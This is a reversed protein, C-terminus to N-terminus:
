SLSWSRLAHCWREKMCSFSLRDDVKEATTTKATTNIKGQSLRTDSCMTIAIV